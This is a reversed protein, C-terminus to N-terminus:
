RRHLEVFTINWGELPREAVVEWRELAADPLEQLPSVLVTVTGVETDALDDLLPALPVDVPVRLLRHDDLSAWAARGLPQADTVLVPAGGDAAPEAADAAALAAPVVVSSARRLDVVSRLSLLSISATLVVVSAVAVTRPSLGLRGPVTAPATAPLSRRARDLGLVTPPVLLPLLLHFYRGGWEVGGGVAYSTLWIAGASLVSVGLCLQMAPRRLDRRRLFLLGLVLLPWAPLLGSILDTPAFQRVVALVAAAVLAGVALPRRAPLFRLLVGAVVVLVLCLFVAVPAWGTGLSAPRLLSIWGASVRGALLGSNSSVGVGKTGGRGLLAAAVRGDLLYAGVGSAGVLGAAIISGWRLRVPWWSRVSMVGLVVSVAAVALLGESRLVVLAAACAAAGVLALAAMLPRRGPPPDLVRLLCVVLLGLAAAGLGHAMVVTTDFLLPSGLGLLWLSWLQLDPRLRRTIAAAALAAIWVACASVLVAGHHGLARYAPLLLTPYAAHKAYPLFHEGSLDSNELPTYTADTDLDAFPREIRWSGPEFVPRTSLHDLEALVAGEDSIAPYGNDLALGIGVLLVLLALAHVWRRRRSPGPAPDPVPEHHPGDDTRSPPDFPPAVAGSRQREPAPVLETERTGSM